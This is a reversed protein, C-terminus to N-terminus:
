LVVWLVRECDGWLNTVECKDYGTETSIIEWHGHGLSECLWQHFDDFVAVECDQMDGCDGNILYPMAYVGIVFETTLM